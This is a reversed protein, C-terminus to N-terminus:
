TGGPQPRSRTDLWEPPVTTVLFHVGYFVLLWLSAYPDEHTEVYRYSFVTDGIKRPSVSGVLRVMEQTAEIAQQNALGSEEISEVIYDLPLYNKFHHYYLGRVIREPVRNLRVLDVNSALKDGVYLGAPTYRPIRRLNELVSRRLPERGPEMLHSVVRPVLRQAQSDSGRQESFVLQRRFYEEDTSAGGNCKECSPVRILNTPRPQPFLNKGPVHDRTTAPEPCYVCRQARNKRKM